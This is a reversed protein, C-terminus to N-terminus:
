PGWDTLKGDEVIAYNFEPDTETRYTLPHNPWEYQITYTPTLNESTISSTEGVVTILGLLFSIVLTILWNIM